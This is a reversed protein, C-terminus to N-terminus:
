VDEQIEYKLYNLYDVLEPELKDFEDIDEIYHTPPLYKNNKRLFYKKGYL